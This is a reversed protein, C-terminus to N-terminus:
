RLGYTTNMIKDVQEPSVHRRANIRALEKEMAEFIQQRKSKIPNSIIDWVEAETPEPTNRNEM